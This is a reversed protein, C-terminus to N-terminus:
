SPVYPVFCKHSSFVVMAVPILYDASLMKQCKVSNDFNKELYVCVCVCVGM